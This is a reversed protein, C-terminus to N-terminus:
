EPMSALDAASASALPAPTNAPGTLPKEYPFYARLFDNPLGEACDFGHDDMPWRHQLFVTPLAFAFSDDGSSESCRASRQPTKGEFRFTPAGPYHASM